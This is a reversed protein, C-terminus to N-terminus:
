LSDKMLNYGSNYSSLSFVAGFPNGFSKGSISKSFYLDKAKPDVMASETTVLSAKTAFTTAPMFSNYGTFRKKYAASLLHSYIKTYFVSQKMQGNFREHLFDIVECILM